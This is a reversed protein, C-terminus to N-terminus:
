EVRKFHKMCVVDRQLWGDKDHLRTEDGNKQRFFMCVFKTGFSKTGVYKCFAGPASACTTEGCDIKITAEHIM